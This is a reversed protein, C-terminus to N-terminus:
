WFDRWGSSCMTILIDVLFFALVVCEVSLALMMTDISARTRFSNIYVEEGPKLHFQRHSSPELFALLLQVGSMGAGVYRWWKSNTLLYGKMPLGSNRHTKIPREHIADLIYISARSLRDSQTQLRRHTDGFFAM